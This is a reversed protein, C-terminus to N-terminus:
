PNGACVAVLQASLVTGIDGVGSVQLALEENPLLNVAANTAVNFSLGVPPGTVVQSGVDVAVPAGAPDKVIHLTATFVNVLTMAVVAHLQVQIPMGGLYQLRGAGNIGFDIANGVLVIGAGSAGILVTTGAGLAIGLDLGGITGRPMEAMPAEEAVADINLVMFRTGGSAGAIEIANIAGNAPYVVDAAAAALAEQESALYTQVVLINPAFGGIVDGKPAHQVAVVFTHGDGAGALVISAVRRDADISALLATLKAQLDAAQASQVFDTVQNDPETITGFTAM